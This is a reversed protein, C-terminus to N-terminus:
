RSSSGDQSTDSNNQEGRALKPISSLFHLSVLSSLIRVPKTIFSHTMNFLDIGRFKGAESPAHADVISCSRALDLSPEM